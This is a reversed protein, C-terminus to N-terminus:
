GTLKCSHMETTTTFQIKTKNIATIERDIFVSTLATSAERRTGWIPRVSGELSNTKTLSKLQQQTEKFVDDSGRSHSKYM